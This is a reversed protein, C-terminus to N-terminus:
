AFFQGIVMESYMTESFIHSLNHFFKICNRNLIDFLWGRSEINDIKLDFAFKVKKAVICKDIEEQTLKPYNPLEKIKELFFSWTDLIVGDFDIYLM